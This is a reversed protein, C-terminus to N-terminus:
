PQRALSFSDALASGGSAYFFIKASTNSAGTRFTVSLLTYSASTASIAVQSGGFDKAGIAPSNGSVRRVQAQLVYTTNPTLGTVVQEFASTGSVIRAASTGAQAGSTAIQVSGYSSWSTMGSEFGPNKVLTTSPATASYNLTLNVTSTTGGTQGAPVSFAIIAIANSGQALKSVDISLQYSGGSPTVDASIQTWNSNPLYAAVNKWATGAAGRIVLPASVSSGNSPSTVSFNSTGPVPTATPSPTPNPTPQPTPTPTPNSAGTSGPGAYNPQPTVAVAGGANSYVHVYDVLMTSPVVTPGGWGGVANNLILQMPQSTVNSTITGIAVGDYYFTIRGPQWHAAFVHWGVMSNRAAFQYHQPSSPSGFHFTSYADGELGEMIDIEGGTPWNDGVLWWAPWNYVTGDAAGPIYIRSEVYGYTMRYKEGTMVLGSRYPYTRGNVTAPSAIAALRLYGGSVTAQKPDYAAAEVTAQVPQTIATGNGFWGNTWKSSDLTTGNFEEDFVLKYSSDIPTFVQANAVSVTSAAAFFSVLATRKLARITFNGM